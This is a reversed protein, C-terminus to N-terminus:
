ILSKWKIAGRRCALVILAMVAASILDFAKSVVGSTIFLYSTSIIYEVLVLANIPRVYKVFGMEDNPLIFCKLEFYSDIIAPLFVFFPAIIYVISEKSYVNISYILFIASFIVPAVFAIARAKRNRRNGDDVVKDLGMSNAALFTCYCGFIGILRVSIQFNDYECIASVIVWFEELVYCGVAGVILKFYFPAKPTYIKLLGYIFAVLSIAFALADCLLEPM